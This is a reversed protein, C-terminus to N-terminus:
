NQFINSPGNIEIEIYDHCTRAFKTLDSQCKYEHVIQCEYEHMIHDCYSINSTGYTINSMVRFLVRMVNKGNHFSKFRSAFLAVNM